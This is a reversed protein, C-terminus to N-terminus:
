TQRRNSSTGVQAGVIGRSLGRDLVISKAKRGEALLGRENLLYVLGVAIM